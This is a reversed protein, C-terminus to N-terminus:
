AYRPEIGATNFNVCYSNLMEQFAGLLVVV